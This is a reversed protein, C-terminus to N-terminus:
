QELPVDPVVSKVGTLQGLSPAKGAELTTGYDLELWGQGLAGTEFGVVGILVTLM